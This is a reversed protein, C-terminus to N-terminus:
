LRSVDSFRIDRTEAMRKKGNRDGRGFRYLLLFKALMSFTSILYICRVVPVVSYEGILWVALPAFFVSLTGCMQTLTFANTIYKPPCDEIFLCYWSTNTIQFSANIASATM